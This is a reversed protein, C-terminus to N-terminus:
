TRPLLTLIRIGLDMDKRRQLDPYRGRFEGTELDNALRRLADEVSRQSVSILSSWCSRFTPSFCAQPRSWAAGCFLDAFDHPIHLPSIRIRRRSVRRLRVLLDQLPQFRLLNNDFVDPFYDNFWYSEALRVDATLIVIRGGNCVRDMERVARDVDGFHHIANVCIIADVEGDELPLEEAYGQSYQVQPHVKAQSLMVQSPEVARVHYGREALALAYNGTGAGIDAIWKGPQLALERLLMETVRPDAKRVQSYQGGITDYLNV